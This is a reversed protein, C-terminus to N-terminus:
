GTTLTQLSTYNQIVTHEFMTSSRGIRMICKIYKKCLVCVSCYVGHFCQLEYLRSRPKGTFQILLMPSQNRTLGRAFKQLIQLLDTDLQLLHTEISKFFDSAHKLEEELM